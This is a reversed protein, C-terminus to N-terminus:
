KYHPNRNPLLYIHVALPIDIELTRYCVADSMSRHAKEMTRWLTDIKKPLLGARGGFERQYELWENSHAKSQGNGFSACRLFRITEYEIDTLPRKTWTVYKLVRKPDYQIDTRYTDNTLDRLYDEVTKEAEDNEDDEDEDSEEDVNSDDEDNTTVGSSQEDNNEDGSLSVNTGLHLLNQAHDRVSADNNPPPTLPHEGVIYQTHQRNTNHREIHRNINYNNVVCSCFPCQTTNKSKQRTGQM